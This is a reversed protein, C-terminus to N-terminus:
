FSLYLNLDLSYKEMLESTLRELRRYVYKRQAETMEKRGEGIVGKRFMTSRRLNSGGKSPDESLSEFRSQEIINRLLNEDTSVELYNLIAILPPLPNILLNEYIIFQISGKFALLTKYEREIRDCYAEVEWDKIVKHKWRKKGIQQYHFSVIRDCHNRLICIIKTQPYLNEILDLYFIYEPTKDGVLRSSPKKQRLLFANYRKVLKRILEERDVKDVLQWLDSFFGKHGQIIRTQFLNRDKDIKGLADFFHGEKTGKTTGPRLITPICTIEPHSDLLIALWTSGCKQLGVILFDPARDSYWRSPFLRVLTPQIFVRIKHLIEDKYEFLLTKVTVNDRQGTKPSYKLKM